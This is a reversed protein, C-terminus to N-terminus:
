CYASTDHFSEQQCSPQGHRYTALYVQFSTFRPAYTTPEGSRPPLQSM